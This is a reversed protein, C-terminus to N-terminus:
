KIKSYGLVSDFKLTKRLKEDSIAKEYDADEIMRIAEEGNEAEVVIMGTYLYELEFKPM